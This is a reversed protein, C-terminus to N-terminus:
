KGGLLTVLSRVKAAREEAAKIRKPLNGGLQKELLEAVAEVISDVDWDTAVEDLTLPFVQASWESSSGQWRSWRGTYDVSVFTGDQRLHLGSGEYAGANDRPCDEQPRQDGVLFVTAEKAHQESERRKDTAHGTISREILPRSCLGRLAPRVLDVLAHLLQREAAREEAFAADRQEHLAKVAAANTEIKTMTEQSLNM